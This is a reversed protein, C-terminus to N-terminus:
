RSYFEVILQENIAEIIDSRIPLRIVKGLAAKRDLWAASEKEKDALLVKIYPIETATKSLSIVDNLKVKYSPINLKKGNVMVNGHSVLQRASSRTPAFGLRYVCNDLRRELLSLMVEGTALPNKSAEVYYKKFQRELIGYINKAKQKEALQVGYDSVKRNGGKRGHAGPPTGIRRELKVGSTKLGLDVGLRRAKKNKPGTYRAM